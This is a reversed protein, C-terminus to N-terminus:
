TMLKKKIIFGSKLSQLSLKKLTSPPPLLVSTTKFNSINTNSAINKSNSPTLLPMNDNYKQVYEVAAQIASIERNLKLTEDMFSFNSLNTEDSLIKNIMSNTSQTDISATSVFNSSPTINM